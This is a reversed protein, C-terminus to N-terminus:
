GKCVQCECSRIRTYVASDDYYVVGPRTCEMSVKETYTEKPACCECTSNGLQYSMNAMTLVNSAQSECGGACRERPLPLLSKCDGVQIYEDSLIEVRCKSEVVVLSNWHMSRSQDSGSSLSKSRTKNCTGCCQGPEAESWTYIHYLDDAQKELCTEESESCIPACM